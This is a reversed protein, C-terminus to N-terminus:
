PRPPPPPDRLLKLFAAPTVVRVAFTADLPLFDRVNHTVLYNAGANVALEAVMEDDPDRLLPRWLFHTQHLDSVGCLYDLFGDIEASTLDFDLRHRKLVTEYELVIPTSLCLRYAEAKLLDLLAYSAGRKSRLAADLVSTDLVVRFM